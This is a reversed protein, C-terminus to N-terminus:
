LFQSASKYSTMSMSPLCLSPLFSIAVMGISSLFVGQIHTNPTSARLLQGQNQDTTQLWLPGHTDATLAHLISISVRSGEWGLVGLGSGAGDRLGPLLWAGGPPRLGGDQAHVTNSSAKRDCGWTAQWETLKM